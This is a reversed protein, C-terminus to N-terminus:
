YEIYIDTENDTKVWITENQMDLEIERNAAVLTFKGDKYYVEYGDIEIRREQDSMKM